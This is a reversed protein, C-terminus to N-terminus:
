KMMQRMAFYVIGVVALVILFEFGYGGMKLKISDFFSLEKEVYVINNVTDCQYIYATDVRLKERYIDRYKLIFVTDGKEKIYTSDHVHVTDKQLRDRYEIRVEVDKPVSVPKPASCGILMIAAVFIVGITQLTKRGM